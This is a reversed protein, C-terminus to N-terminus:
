QKTGAPKSPTPKPFTGDRMSAQYLVVAMVTAAQKLANPDIREGTDMNTHHTRVDYNIYEQVAQFGPVGVELFSLHDTAGIHGPAPMIAGISSVPKLWEAMIARAPDNGEMYFGSIPPYGNDLNFYVSFKDRAAKNKEGSLHQEVYAKSGLLGQEEGAWLAARITRRPRINLVKLIRMAEIVTASGDANDTAGTGTHWSDLHAGVMVIEDKLANDTGPIEAIVNHTNRDDENFTAQIEVALKVPIKQQLMKAILNYHESALIISPVANAGMDRGTVFVTGHEGINPEITVAVGETKLPALREANLNPARSPAPSPPKLDGSAAPRDARIAYAQLPSTFLIAGKLKGTQAKIAEPELGPMWVPTAVVRGPTSPSWGRPYGILPMYRPELMEITVKNLTWGRGFQFAEAHVDSLGIAKMQEQTWAIARRHAPSNTLRPGIATTLYDFTENVKSREMGEARIKEIVTFDVRDQGGESGEAAVALDRRLENSDIRASASAALGAGLATAAAIAIAITKM